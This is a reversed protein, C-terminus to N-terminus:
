FRTISLLILADGVITGINDAADEYHGDSQILTLNKYILETANALTQYYSSSSDSFSLLPQFPTSSLIKHNADKM